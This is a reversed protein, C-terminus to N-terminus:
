LSFYEKTVKFFLQNEAETGITVRLMNPLHYAAVLRVIIGKNNLFESFERAKQESELDLLIFNAVSPYFKIGLKTLKEAFEKLYYKNHERSKKVFEQDDLAVIAAKQALSNVNFPSRIRNLIDILDAHMYAYGCRLAALGYIKSFTRTAIVNDYEKVLRFGNEYDSNDVYEAYAGDIVLLIDDRLNDRLKKLKEYSIYSGTPNNPNAIFVVRTKGTVAALINQTDCTLNNEKAVVPKVGAALAYLKYMLFGHETHIIEDDNKTFSNIILNIIEDSGCGCILNKTEIDHLKAIKEKLLAADGDPYRHLDQALNALKQKVRDSYGLPNENSSLKTVQEKGLLASKGPQYPAIAFITKNINLKNILKM